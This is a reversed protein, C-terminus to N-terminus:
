VKALQVNSSRFNAFKLIDNIFTKNDPRVWEQTITGNPEIYYAVTSPMYNRWGDTAPRLADWQQAQKQTVTLIPVRWVHKSNRRANVAANDYSACFPMIGAARLEPYREHIMSTQCPKCGFKGFVPGFWLLVPADTLPLAWTKGHDDQAVLEPAVLGIM